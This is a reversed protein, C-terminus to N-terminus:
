ISGMGVYFAFDQKLASDEAQNEWGPHFQRMSANYLRRLQTTEYEMMYIWFLENKGEDDLSDDVERDMHDSETDSEDAYDERQPEKERTSDDLFKPPQTAMWLPMASVCEWDIVATIEGEENVLINSLSLDLHWIVSREPPNQISPFIKPLLSVLRRALKLTFDAYKKDDSDEAEEKAAAHDRYMWILHSSSFFTGAVLQGPRPKQDDDEKGNGSAVLTGLGTFSHSFIQAQFEAVRQVLAAKQFATLTRWKKYLSIGPMREVLIWEFGIKNENSDDFAIIEPVTIDAERRLFRLTTVESRTKSHPHVPLSVRMLFDRHSTRALYLKNFAGEAFFSVDCSKSDYTQLKYRCMNTIAELVPERSWVPVIELGSEDWDLGSRPVPAM